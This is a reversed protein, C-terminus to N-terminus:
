RRRHPPSIQGSKFPCETRKGREVRGFSLDIRSVFLRFVEHRRAPDAAALEQGLHEIRSVLDQVQADVDRSKSAAKARRIQAQHQDRQRKMATLKAGILDLVEAPARLFNEAARDIERKLESVQKRLAELGAPSAAAQAGLQARM